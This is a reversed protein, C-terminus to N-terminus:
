KGENKNSRTNMRNYKASLKDWIREITLMDINDDLEDELNEVINEYNEPINSLIHTTMEADDIIVGLKRWNGRLLELETIWDEPYRTVDDLKSKTFKKHIIKRSAGKM